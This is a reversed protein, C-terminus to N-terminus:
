TSPTPVIVDRSGIPSAMFTVNSAGESSARYMAGFPEIQMQPTLRVTFVNEADLADVASPECVASGILDNVRWANKKANEFDVDGMYIKSAHAFKALDYACATGQMGAGLVAFTKSM